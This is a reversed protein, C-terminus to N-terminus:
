ERQQEPRNALCCNVERRAPGLKVALGREGPTWPSVRLVRRPGPAHGVPGAGLDRLVVAVHVGLALVGPPRLLDAEKM